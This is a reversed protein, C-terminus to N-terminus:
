AACRYRSRPVDQSAMVQGGIDNYPFAGGSAKLALVRLVLGNNDDLALDEYCIFLAFFSPQARSIQAEERCPGSAEPSNWFAHPFYRNEAFGYPTWCTEPQFRPLLKQSDYPDGDDLGGGRQSSDIALPKCSSCVRTDDGM